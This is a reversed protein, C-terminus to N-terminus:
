LMERVVVEQRKLSTMEHSVLMGVGILARQSM